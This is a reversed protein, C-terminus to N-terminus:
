EQSRDASFMKQRGRVTAGEEILPPRGPPLDPYYAYYIMGDVPSKMDCATIQRQLKRLNSVELEWTAKKALEDSRKREVDARLEKITTIKSKNIGEVYESVAIEAVERPRKANEFNAEASKQTIM